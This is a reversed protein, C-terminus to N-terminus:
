ASAVNFLESAAKFVSFHKPTKARDLEDIRLDLAYAHARIHRHIHTNKKNKTERDMLGGRAETVVTSRSPSAKNGGGDRDNWKNRLRCQM